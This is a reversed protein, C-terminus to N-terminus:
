AAARRAEDDAHAEAPTMCKGDRWVEGLAESALQIQISHLRRGARYKERLTQAWNRNGEMSRKATAARNIEDVRQAREAPTLDPTPLAPPAEAVQQRCLALFEPLTPPLRLSRCADIAKSLRQPQDAFGALEEGWTAKALLLGRDFTRGGREVAEGTRWRDVWLSGYMGQMRDFIREVWSEPLPPRKSPANM